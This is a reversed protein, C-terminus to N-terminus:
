RSRQHAQQLERHYRDLTAQAPQGEYVIERFAGTLARDLQAWYDVQPRPRAQTLAEQVAAFYPAQWAQINGYADGRFSPWGLSSV